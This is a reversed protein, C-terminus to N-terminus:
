YLCVLRLVIWYFDIFIIVSNGSCLICDNWDRVGFFFQIFDGNDCCIYCLCVFVDRFCCEVVRQFQDFILDDYEVRFVVVNEIVVFGGFFYKDVLVGIDIGSVFVFYRVKDSVVVYVVKFYVILCQM